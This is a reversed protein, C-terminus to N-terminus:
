ILIKVDITHLCSQLKSTNTLFLKVSLMDLKVISVILANGFDAEDNHIDDENLWYIVAGDIEEFEDAFLM